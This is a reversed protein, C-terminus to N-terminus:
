GNVNSKGELASVVDNVYKFKEPDIKNLEKVMTKTLKSLDKENPLKEILTQLNKNIIGVLSNHMNIENDIMYSSHKLIFNLEEPKMNDKIFKFIDHQCAEDYYEGIDLNTYFQTIMLNLAVENAITDKSKMGNNEVISYKMIEECILRKTSIPLYYQIRIDYLATEDGNKVKEIIDFVNIREM